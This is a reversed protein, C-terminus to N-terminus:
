KRETERQRERVCVCVRVYICACVYMPFHLVCSKSISKLYLKVVPLDVGGSCITLPVYELRCGPFLTM